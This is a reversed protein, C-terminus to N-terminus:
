SAIRLPISDAMVSLAQLIKNKVIKNGNFKTLDHKLEKFVIEINWRMLYACCIDKCSLKKGIGALTITQCGRCSVVVVAEGVKSVDAETSMVKLTNKRGNVIMSVKKLDRM